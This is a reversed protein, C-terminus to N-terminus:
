YLAYTKHANFFERKYFSGCYVYKEKSTGYPLREEITVYCGSMSLCIVFLLLIKM